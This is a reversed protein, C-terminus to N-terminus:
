PPFVWVVGLTWVLHMGIPAALGGTYHRLFGTVAGLVLAAVVPLVAGLGVQCLAYWLTGLSIALIPSYRAILGRHALGRWLIEESTGILATAFFAPVPPWEASVLSALRGMETRGEPWLPFLVFAILHTLGLGIGGVGLGLLSSKWTPVKAADRRPQFRLGFIIVLVSVIALSPVFGFPQFIGALLWLLSLGLAM